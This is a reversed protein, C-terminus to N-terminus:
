HRIQAFGDRCLFFPEVSVQQPTHGGPLLLACVQSGRRRWLHLGEMETLLYSLSCCLVFASHCVLPLPYVPSSVAEEM